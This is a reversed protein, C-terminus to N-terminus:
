GKKIELQAVKNRENQLERSLKAQKELAKRKFEEFEKSLSDAIVMQEKMKWRSVKWYGSLIVIVGILAATIFFIIGRFFNKTFSIGLINIHKSDYEIDKVAARHQDLHAKLGDIEQRLQGIEQQSSALSARTANMSDLTMKWFGDLIHEKIVKYDQFTQSNTKMARYRDNLPLSNKELAIAAPQAYGAVSAFALSISLWFVQKM